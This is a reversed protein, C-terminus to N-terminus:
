VTVVVRTERRSPIVDQLTVARDALPMASEAVGRGPPSTVYLDLNQEVMVAVGVDFPLCRFLTPFARSFLDGGNAQAGRASTLEQILV